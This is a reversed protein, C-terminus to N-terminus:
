KRNSIVRSIVNYCRIEGKLGPLYAQLCIRTQQGEVEKPPVYSVETVCHYELRSAPSFIHLGTTYDSVETVTPCNSTRDLTFMMFHCESAINCMVTSGDPLTPDIYYPKFMDVPTRSSQGAVRVNFCVEESVYISEKNEKGQICIRETGNGTAKINLYGEFHNGASNTADVVLHKVDITPPVHGLEIFPVNPPEGIIQLPISCSENYICVIEVPLVFNGTSPRKVNSTISTSENKECESGSYGSHCHCIPQGNENGSDCFGKNKCHLKRCPGHLDDANGSKVEMNFCRKEGTVRNWLLQAELCLRHNKGLYSSSPNFVFDISCNGAPMTGDACTNCHPFLQFDKELGETLIMTPRKNANSTGSSVMFMMHCTIGITCIVTSDQTISPATFHPKTTDGYFSSSDPKVDVHFCIEDVNVLEKNLTQLCVKQKGPPKPTFNVEFTYTGNTSNAKIPTSIGNIQIMPSVFGFQVTPGYTDPYHGSIAFPIVCPKYSVCVVEKPIFTDTFIPKRAIKERTVWKASALNSM